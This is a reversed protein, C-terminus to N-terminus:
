AQTDEKDTEDEKYEEALEKIYQKITSEHWSLGKLITFLAEFVEDIGVDNKDFGVSVTIDYHTGTFKTGITPFKTAM